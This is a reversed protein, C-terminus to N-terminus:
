EKESIDQHKFNFTLWLIKKSRHPLEFYKETGEFSLVLSWNQTFGDHIGASAILLHKIFNLLFRKQM